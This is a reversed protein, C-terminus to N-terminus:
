VRGLITYSKTSFVLYYNIENYIIIYKGIENSVFLKVVKWYGIVYDSFVINHIKKKTM